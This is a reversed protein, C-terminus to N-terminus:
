YKRHGPNLAPKRERSTTETPSSCKSRLRSEVRGRNPLGVGDFIPSPHALFGWQLDRLGALVGGRRLEEQLLGSQSPPWPRDTDM